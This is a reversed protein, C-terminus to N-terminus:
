VLAVTEVQLQPLTQIVLLEVVVAALILQEMQEQLQVQDQVAQVVVALDVKDLQILQNIQM